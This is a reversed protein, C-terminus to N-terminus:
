IVGGRGIHVLMVRGIGVRVSVRVSKRVSVRVSMRVGMYMGVCTCLHTSGVQPGHVVILSVSTSISSCSMRSLPAAAIRTASDSGPPLRENTLLLMLLLLLLLLLRAPVM